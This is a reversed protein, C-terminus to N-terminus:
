SVTATGSTRITAGGITITGRLHTVSPPYAWNATIQTLVENNKGRFTGDAGCNTTFAGGPTWTSGGNESFEMAISLISVPNTWNTVDLVITLKAAGPEVPRSPIETVGVQSHRNPINLVTPLAM